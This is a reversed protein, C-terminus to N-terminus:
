MQMRQHRPRVGKKKEPDLNLCCCCLQICCWRQMFKVIANAERVDEELQHSPIFFSLTHRTHLTDGSALEAWSGPVGGWYVAWYVLLRVNSFHREIHDLQEGQRHLEVLTNKGIDVTEQAVQRRFATRAPTLPAHRVGRSFVM